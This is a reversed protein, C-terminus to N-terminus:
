GPSREYYGILPGLATRDKFLGLIYASTSRIRPQPDKLLKIMEPIASRSRMKGLFLLAQIRFDEHESSLGEILADEGSYDGLEYLSSAASFRVAEEEDTLQEAGSLDLNLEQQYKIVLVENPASKVKEDAVEQLRDQRINYVSDLLELQVRHKELDPPIRDLLIKVLFIAGAIILIVLLIKLCKYGWGIIVHDDM